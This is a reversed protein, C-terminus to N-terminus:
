MGRRQVPMSTPNGQIQLGQQPRYQSLTPTAGGQGQMPTQMQTVPQGGVGADSGSKDFGMDVGSANGTIDPSQNAQVPPPTPTLTPPLPPPQYQPVNPQGQQPYSMFPAPYGQGMSQGQGGGSM